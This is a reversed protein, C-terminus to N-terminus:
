DYPRMNRPEVVANEAMTEAVMTNLRVDEMMGCAM